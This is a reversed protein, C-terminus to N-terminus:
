VDATKWHKLTTWTVTKIFWQEIKNWHNNLTLFLFSFREVCSVYYLLLKCEAICATMEKGLFLKLSDHYKEYNSINITHKRTSYFM